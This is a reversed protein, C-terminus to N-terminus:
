RISLKTQSPISERILSVIRISAVGIVEILRSPIRLKIRLKKPMKIANDCILALNKGQQRHQSIRDGRIFKNSESRDGNALPTIQPIRPKRSDQIPKRITIKDKSVRIIPDHIVVILSFSKTSKALLYREALNLSQRLPAACHDIMVVGVTGTTMVGFYVVPLAM